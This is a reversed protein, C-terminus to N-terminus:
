RAADMYSVVRATCGAKSDDRGSMWVGATLDCCLKWTQAAAVLIKLVQQRRAGAPVNIAGGWVCVCWRGGRGEGQGDHMHRTCRSSRLVILGCADGAFSFRVVVWGTQMQEHGNM